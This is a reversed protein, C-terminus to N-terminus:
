LQSPASDPELMAADCPSLSGALQHRVAIAMEVPTRLFANLRESGSEDNVRSGQGLVNAETGPTKVLMKVEPVKVCASRKPPEGM